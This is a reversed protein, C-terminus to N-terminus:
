RSYLIKGVVYKLLIIDFLSSNFGVIFKQKSYNDSKVKGIGFVIKNSYTDYYTCNYVSEALKIKKNYNEFLQICYKEYKVDNHIAHNTQALCIQNNNKEFKIIRPITGQLGFGIGFMTSKDFQIVCNLDSDLNTSTSIHEQIISESGFDIVLNDTKYVYDNNNNNNNNNYQLSKTIGFIKEFLGFKQSSSSTSPSSPSSPTSPTSQTSSTPIINVFCYQMSEFDFEVDELIETDNLSM